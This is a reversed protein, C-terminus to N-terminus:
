VARADAQARRTLSPRLADDYRGADRRDNYRDNTGAGDKRGGAVDNGENGLSIPLASSCLSRTLANLAPPERMAANAARSQVAWAPRGQSSRAASSAGSRALGSGRAPWPWSAPRCRHALNSIRARAPCSRDLYSKCSTARPNQRVLVRPLLRGDPADHVLEVLAAGVMGCQEALAQALEEEVARVAVLGGKDRQLGLQLLGQQRQQM